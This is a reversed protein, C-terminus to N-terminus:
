RHQALSAQAVVGHILGDSANAAPAGDDPRARSRYHAQMAPGAVRLPQAGPPAPQAPTAGQM